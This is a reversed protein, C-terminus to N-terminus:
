LSIKHMYTHQSVSLSFVPRQSNGFTDLAKLTHFYQPTGEAEMDPMTSSFLGNYFFLILVVFSFFRLGEDQYRVALARDLDRSHYQDFYTM